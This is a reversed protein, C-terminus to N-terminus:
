GRQCDDSKSIRLVTRQERSSFGSWGNGDRNDGGGCPGRETSNIAAYITSRFFIPYFTGLCYGHLRSLDFRLLSVNRGTYELSCCGCFLPRGFPLGMYKDVTQWVSFTWRAGLQYADINNHITGSAADYGHQHYGFYVEMNAADVNQVAEIGYATGGGLATGASDKMNKSKFADVSLFTKGFAFWDGQLGAKAYVYNGNDSRDGVTLVGSLGTDKHLLGFSGVTANWGKAGSVDVRNHVFSAKILMNGTDAAYRLAADYYKNNDGDKLVERGAAVSVKFGGAFEETDFRVRAKRGANFDNYVENIRPGVAGGAAVFSYGGVSNQVAASGVLKTGSMDTESSVADAAMSGQGAYITGIGNVEYIAEIKRLNEKSWHVSKGSGSQNFGGSGLLGLSTEFNFKLRGNAADM